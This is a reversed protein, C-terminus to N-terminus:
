KFETLIHSRVLSQEGSNRQRRCSASNLGYLVQIHDVSRERAIEVIVAADGVKVIDLPAAFGSALVVDAACRERTLGPVGVFSLVNLLGALVAVRLLDQLVLRFEVVVLVSVAVTREM